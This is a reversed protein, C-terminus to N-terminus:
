RGCSQRIDELRSDRQNVYFSEVEDRAMTPLPLLRVASPQTLSRPTRSHLSKVLEGAEAGHTSWDEPDDLM